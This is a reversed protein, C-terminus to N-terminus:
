DDKDSFTTTNQRVFPATFVSEWCAGDVASLQVTIPTALKALSPVDLARGKAKLQIRTRGPEDGARLTLDSLGDPLGTSDSFRYGNPKEVWHSGAPAVAATVLGTGDYICALHTTVTTPGGFDIKATVDGAMLKWQLADASDRAKDKVLVSSKGPTM